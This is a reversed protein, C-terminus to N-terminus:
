STISHFAVEFAPPPCVDDVGRIGEEDNPEDAAETQTMHGLTGCIGDPVVAGPV